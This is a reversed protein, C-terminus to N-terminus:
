KMVHRHAVIWYSIPRFMDHRDYAIHYFDFQLLHIFPTWNTYLHESRFQQLIIFMYLSVLRTGTVKNICKEICNEIVREFVNESVTNIGGKM